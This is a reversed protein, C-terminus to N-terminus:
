STVRSQKIRSQTQRILSRLSFYLLLTGSLYAMWQGTEGLNVSQGVTISIDMASVLGNTVLGLLISSLSIGLLYLILTKTGMERQIVGMTALNTAPGALLFVLVTGPSIGALIMAAALPTSATACIYMPIGIVLMMLMAPLGDGWSALSDPPAFSMVLAALLLGAFLWLWIDDLIDQFAYRLGNLSRQWGRLESGKETKACEDNDCGCAPANTVPLSITPRETVQEKVAFTNLLGTFLASLIAAVPRVVAMFPGLLAYTLAISDPGTEPTSIMFSVTASKSAGSRRLGMAAPLVGCSCLPLPAGILTAKFVPWFRGEGLKRRLLGEPMWAKLLGAMILGLLLWPAADLYLSLLNQLLNTPM